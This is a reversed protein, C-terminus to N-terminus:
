NIKKVIESALFAELFYEQSLKYKDMGKLYEYAELVKSEDDVLHAAHDLDDFYLPYDEGLYEIVAPHRNVLLPTNRAMCEIVANNASSDYLDVFVVNRSLMHDYMENKLRSWEEYRGYPKGHYDLTKSEIDRLVMAYKNPMLWVKLYEDTKLRKISDMKRLWYGIQFITKNKNRKFVNPDWLMDPIETPHYITSVPVDVQQSLWENVYDSLVFLGLCKDLSQVFPERNIIYQPSHMFDFWVPMNHPNHIFGIWPRTYPVKHNLLSSELDWSFTKEIFMDVFVEADPNHVPLVADIAFQWGSRHEPFGVQDGLDIIGDPSGPYVVEVHNKQAEYRERAAEVDVGIDGVFVRRYLDEWGIFYDFSKIYETLAIGFKNANEIMWYDDDRGGSINLRQFDDGIIQLIKEGYFQNWDIWNYKSLFETERLYKVSSVMLGYDPGGDLNNWPMAYCNDTLKFDNVIRRVRCLTEPTTVVIYDYRGEIAQRISFCLAHGFKDVGALHESADSIIVSHNTHKYIDFEASDIVPLDLQYGLSHQDVSILLHDVGENDMCQIWQNAPDVKCDQPNMIGVSLIKDKSSGSSAIIHKRLTRLDAAIGDLRDLVDKM